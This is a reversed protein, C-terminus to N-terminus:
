EVQKFLRWWWLVAFMFGVLVFDRGLEAGFDEGVVTADLLQFGRERSSGKTHEGVPPDPHYRVVLSIKTSDGCESRRCQENPRSRVHM